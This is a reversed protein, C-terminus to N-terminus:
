HLSVLRRQWLQETVPAVFVYVHLSYLIGTWLPLPLNVHCKYITLLLFMIEFLAVFELRIPKVLEMLIAPCSKEKIKIGERWWIIHKDQNKFVYEVRNNEVSNNVDKQGYGGALRVSSITHTIPVCTFNYWATAQHINIQVTSYPIM